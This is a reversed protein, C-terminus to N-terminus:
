TCQQFGGRLAIFSSSSDKCSPFLSIILLLVLIHRKGFSVARCLRRCLSCLHGPHQLAPSRSSAEGGGPPALVWACRQICRGYLGKEDSFNLPIRSKSGRSMGICHPQAAGLCGSVALCYFPLLWRTRIGRCARMGGPMSISISPYASGRPHLSCATPFPTQRSVTALVPGKHASNESSSVGLSNHKGTTACQVGAWRCTSLILGHPRTQLLNHSNLFQVRGTGPSQFCLQNHKRCM